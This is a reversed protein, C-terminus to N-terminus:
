GKCNWDNKEDELRLMVVFDFHCICDAAGLIQMKNLLNAPILGAM